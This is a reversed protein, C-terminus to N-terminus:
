TYHLYTLTLANGLELPLCPMPILSLGHQKEVSVSGAQTAESGDMESLIRDLELLLFGCVWLGVEWHCLAPQFYPQYLIFSFYM